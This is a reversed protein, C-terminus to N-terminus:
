MAESIFSFTAWDVGSIVDVSFPTFDITDAISFCTASAHTGARGHAGSETTIFCAGSGTSM